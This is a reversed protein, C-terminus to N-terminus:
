SVDVAIQWNKKIMYKKRYKTKEIFRDLLSNILISELASIVSNYFEIKQHNYPHDVGMMKLKLAHLRDQTKLLASLTAIEHESLQGIVEENSSVEHKPSIFNREKLEEEILRLVENLPDTM